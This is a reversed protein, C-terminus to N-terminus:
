HQSRSNQTNQAQSAILLYGKATADRQLASFLPGASKPNASAAVDAQALKIQLTVGTLKSKSSEALSADLIKRAEPGKAEKERLRANTIALSLAVVRDQPHLKSARDIEARADLLKGQALLSRALTDRADAEQDVLKESAFEDAAQRALPEADAVKNDELDLLAIEARAGAIFPASQQKVALALAEEYQKRANPLDARILFLDGRVDLAAPLNTEAGSEKYLSIGQQINKEAADLQGLQTQLGSLNTLANAATAKDSIQMATELSQKYFSEAALYDGSTQYHAALSDTV